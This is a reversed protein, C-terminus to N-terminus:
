HRHIKRPDPRHGVHYLGCYRRCHYVHVTWEAAGQSIRYARWREAQARTALPKKRTCSHKRTAARTHRTGSM